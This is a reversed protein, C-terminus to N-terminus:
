ARDLLGQETITGLAKEVTGPGQFIRMGREILYEAAGPGIVAVVIAECDSLLSLIADFSATDHGGVRCAPAVQRTEAPTYTGGEIDVIQFTETRGFHHHITLGDTTSVAIRHRANPRTADDTVNNGM